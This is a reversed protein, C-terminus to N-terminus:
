SFSAAILADVRPDAPVIAPSYLGHVNVWPDKAALAEEAQRFAADTEGQALHAWTLFMPTVYGAEARQRLREFLDDAREHDGTLSCLCILLSLAISAGGSLELASEAKSGAEVLRGSHVLGTSLFYHPMWFKPTRAIQEELTRLGEAPQGSFVLITGAWTQVAPSLPDLRLALRARGVAEEGGGQAMLFLGLYTQALADNPALEAARRLSREGAVRNREFFARSHGLVSHGHALNPDLALAREALPIAHALAETPPQDAWWSPSTMSDALQAYAPAFEPDLRIAQRFLECCRAFGAPTMKNWEFLGKLYADYAELNYTRRRVISAREGSLLKVKLNEVIALAIEDQIAFVDELRRDFRESWLHYGDAVNILQATIRLRDGAKRVSGELVTSVDLSRGIERIDQARDKFAFSSTRAVVRLGEVHALANIIEEAIGDCFYEQEPDASLNVPPLVAISPLEQLPPRSDATGAQKRPQAAAALAFAVDRATDFRDEPRKELCRLVVVDLAAPVDPQRDALPRPDRTLIAALTDAATTGAFPQEGSLMEHLVCGFAFIDARHDVEQGRIQEPSMYAATGMMTGPQTASAVTSAAAAQQPSRLLKALGFDLIKLRGDRTIFLNEPKLDRHVIGKEHAAALGRAMQDAFDIATSVPLAGVRLRTRLSEGELLETVLYPAGEHTGLDHVVLINPHNLASAARAEQEFRRLRDPDDAFEAPLVKAAVDRGLRTDRARYVEGMGGAGLLALVEYPGLRTGATLSM